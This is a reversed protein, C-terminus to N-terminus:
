AQAAGYKRRRRWRFFAAFGGVFLLPLGVNLVQWMTKQEKATVTDLLRLKVEKSRAEIVGSADILYEVANLMFEKNAYMNKEYHNYGLPVWQKVGTAPDTRVHNAAVDGDSVVIMRNATSVPKFKIGAQQLGAAMEESVRNEYNSAFIGELLVAVPQNGKDFKAPDPDYKLIEFNLNIPSFQLRSYRSSALLVTKKVPTKTRITDISSCFHMDVRDLNKVV